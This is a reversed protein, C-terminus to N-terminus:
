ILTTNADSKNFVIETGAKAQTGPLRYRILMSNLHLPDCVLSM